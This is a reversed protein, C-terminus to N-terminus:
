DRFSFPLKVLKVIECSFISHNAHYSQLAHSVFVFFLSLCEMFAHLCCIFKLHRIVVYVKFVSLYSFFWYTCAWGIHWLLVYTCLLYYYTLLYHTHYYPVREKSFWRSQYTLPLHGCFPTQIIKARSPLTPYIGLLNFNGQGPLHANFVFLCVDGHGVTLTVHSIDTFKRKGKGCSLNDVNHM